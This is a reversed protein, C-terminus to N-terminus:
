FRGMLYPIIVDKKPAQILIMLAQASSMVACSRYIHLRPPSDKSMIGRTVLLFGALKLFSAGMRRAFHFFGGQVHDPIEQL